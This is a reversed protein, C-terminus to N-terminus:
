ELYPLINATICQVYVERFTIIWHYAAITSWICILEVWSHFYIQLIFSTYRLTYVTFLSRSFYHILIYQLHVERLISDRRLTSTCKCYLLLVNAIYVTLFYISGAPLPHKAMYGSPFIVTIFIYSFLLMKYLLAGLKIFIM